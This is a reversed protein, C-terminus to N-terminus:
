NKPSIIPTSVDKNFVALYRREKLRASILGAAIGLGGLVVMVSLTGVFLYFSTLM